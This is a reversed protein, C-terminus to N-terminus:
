TTSITRLLGDNSDASKFVPSQQVPSIKNQETGIQDTRNQDEQGGNNPINTKKM